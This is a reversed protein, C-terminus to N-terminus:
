GRVKVSGRCASQHFSATDTKSRCVHVRASRTRGRREGGVGGGAGGVGYHGAVRQSSNNGHVLRTISRSANRGTGAM